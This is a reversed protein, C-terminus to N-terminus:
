IVATKLNLMVSLWNKINYKIFYKELMDNDVFSPIPYEDDFVDFTKVPTYSYFDYNKVYKNTTILPKGAFIAEFTRITLGNQNNHEIDIICKSKRMIELYEDYQIRKRSIEGRYGIIVGIVNYIYYHMLSPAYLYIFYKDNNVKLRRTMKSLKYFRSFQVSGVFFYKYLEDVVNDRIVNSKHTHFLPLHHLINYKKCDSPDFSYAKDSLKIVDISGPKQKISDWLYTIIEIGHMIKKISMIIDSNIMEPSIIIISDPKFEKVRNIIWKKYKIIEYKINQRIRLRTIIKDFVSNCFREDVVCCDFGLESIADGIKKHYEHYEPCILMVKRKNTM